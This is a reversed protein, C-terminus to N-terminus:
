IPSFLYIIFSSDFSLEKKVDHLDIAALQTILSVGKGGENILPSAGFPCPPTRILMFLSNRRCISGGAESREDVGRM